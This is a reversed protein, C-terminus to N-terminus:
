VPDPVLMNKDDKPVDLNADDSAIAHLQRWEYQIIWSARFPQQQTKGITEARQIVNDTVPIVAVVKCDIKEGNNLSM